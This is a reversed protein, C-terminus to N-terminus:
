NYTLTSSKYEKTKYKRTNDSNQQVVPLELIFTAGHDIDSAISITGGMSSVIQDAASLGLGTAKSKTTFFPSFITGQHELPIGCGTDRISLYLLGHKEISGDLYLEKKESAEMAEVANQLINIIVQEINLFEETLTIDGDDMDLIVRIKKNQFVETFIALCENVLTSLSYGRAAQGFHRMANSFSISSNQENLPMMVTKIHPAEKTEMSLWDLEAEDGDKGEIMCKLRQIRQHRQKILRLITSEITALSVPKNIYDSVDSRIANISSEMNGQGTIVIPITEPFVEKVAKIVDIGNGDPLNLDSILIDYEHATGMAIASAVDGAADVHYNKGSLGMALAKRIIDDDEVILVNEM